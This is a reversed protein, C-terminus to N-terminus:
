RRLHFRGALRVAASPSADPEIAFNSFVNALEISGRGSNRLSQLSEQCFIASKRADTRFFAFLKKKLLEGCVCKM